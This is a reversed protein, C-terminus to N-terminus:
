KIHLYSMKHYPSRKCRGLYHATLGEFLHIPVVFGGVPTDVTTLQGHIDGGVTVVPAYRVISKGGAQTPMGATFVQSPKVVGPTVDTLSNSNNDDDSCSTFSALTVTALATFLLRSAKM